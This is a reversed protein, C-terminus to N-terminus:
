AIVLSNSSSLALRITCLLGAPAFQLIPQGDTSPQAVREILTTGFGKTAPQSVAPGGSEKWELHLVREGDGQEVEWSIELEQLTARAKEICVGLSEAENLCPMVISVEVGGGELPEESM